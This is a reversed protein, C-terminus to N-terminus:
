PAAHRGPESAAPITAAALRGLALRDVKGISHLPLRDVVVIWEPVKYVAIHEGAFQQLEEASPPRSPDRPVVFAAVRQGLRADPVGAVAVMQVAPHAALVAEVELPSINSGGRILIEKKRGMFWYYGDEDRRALDGTRVWGDRFTEATSKTDNWYGVASAATKVWIEGTEGFAAPAGDDDVLQIETEFTPLGISGIKKGAFPPNMVYSFCETM